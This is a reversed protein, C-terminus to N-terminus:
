LSQVQKINKFCLSKCNCHILRNSIASPINGREDEKNVERSKNAPSRYSFCDRNNGLLILVAGPTFIMSTLTLSASWHPTWSSVSLALVAAVMVHICLSGFASFLYAALRKQVNVRALIGLSVRLLKKLPDYQEKLLLIKEEEAEKSFSYTIQYSSKEKQKM